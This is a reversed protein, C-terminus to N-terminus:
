SKKRPVYPRKAVVQEWSDHLDCRFAYRQNQDMQVLPGTTPDKRLVIANVAECLLNNIIIWFAQEVALFYKATDPDIKVKPKATM